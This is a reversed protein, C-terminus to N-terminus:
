ATGEDGIQLNCTRIWKEENRWRALSSLELTSHLTVHENWPWAPKIFISRNEKAQSPELSNELISEWRPWQSIINVQATKSDPKIMQMCKFKLISLKKRCRTNGNSLSWWGNLGKSQALAPNFQFVRCNISLVISRSSLENAPYKMLHAIWRCFSKNLMKHLFEGCKYM